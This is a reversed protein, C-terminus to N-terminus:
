FPNLNFVDLKRSSVDVVPDALTPNRGALFELITSLSDGDPNGSGIQGLNGFYQIEWADALGDGDSDSASPPLGEFPLAFVSKLQGVTAIAKNSDDASSSTWPYFNAPDTLDKTLNETLRTELWSPYVNSLRLYFPASIAKLQGVLLVARQQELQEATTPVTLNVVAAVDAQLAQFTPADLRTQLEALAMAVIHKAQGLTAPSLNGQPATTTVGRTAWWAPDAAHSTIAPALFLVFSLPIPILKMQFLAYHHGFSEPGPQFSHTSFYGMRPSRHAGGCRM